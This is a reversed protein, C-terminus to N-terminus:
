WLTMREVKMTKVSHRWRGWVCVAVVGFKIGDPICSVSVTRKEVHGAM